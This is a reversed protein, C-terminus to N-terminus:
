HPSKITQLAGIILRTPDRVLPVASRSGDLAEPLAERTRAPHRADITYAAATLSGNKVRRGQALGATATSGGNIWRERATSASSKIDM